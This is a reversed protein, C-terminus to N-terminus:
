LYTEVEDEIGGVQRAKVHLASQGGVAPEALFQTSEVRGLEVEEQMGGNM